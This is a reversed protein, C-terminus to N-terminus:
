LDRKSNREQKIEVATMLENFSIDSYLAMNIVCILVDALESKKKCKDYHINRFTRWRKDEQLLEGVEEITMLAWEKFMDVNDVPFVENFEGVVNTMHKVEQEAQEMYVAELRDM